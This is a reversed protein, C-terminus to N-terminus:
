PHPKLKARVEAGMDITTGTHPCQPTPDIMATGDITCRQMFYDFSFCEAANWCMCNGPTV